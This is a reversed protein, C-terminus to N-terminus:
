NEDKGRNKNPVRKPKTSPWLNQPSYTSIQTKNKIQRLLDRACM